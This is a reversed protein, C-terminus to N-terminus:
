LGEKKIKKILKRHQRTELQKMADYLEVAKPIFEYKSHKFYEADVLPELFDRVPQTIKYIKDHCKDQCKAAMLEKKRSRREEAKKELEYYDNAYLAVQEDDCYKDFVYQIITTILKTKSLKKEMKVAEKQKKLRM